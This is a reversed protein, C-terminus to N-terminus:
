SDILLTVSCFHNSRVLKEEKEEKMIEAVEGKLSELKETYRGVM